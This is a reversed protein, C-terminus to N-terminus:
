CSDYVKLGCCCVESSRGIRIARQCEVDRRQCDRPWRIGTVGSQQPFPSDTDWEVYPM